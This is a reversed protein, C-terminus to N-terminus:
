SLAIIYYYHYYYKNNNNNNYILYIYKIWSFYEAVRYKMFNKFCCDDPM